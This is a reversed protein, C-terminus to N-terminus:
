KGGCSPGSSHGTTGAHSTCVEQHSIATELLTEGARAKIQESVVTFPRIAPLNKRLVPKMWHPICGSMVVAAPWVTGPTANDMAM